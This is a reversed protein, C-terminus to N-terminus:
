HGMAATCLATITSFEAAAKAAGPDGSSTILASLVSGCQKLYPGALVACEHSCSTPTCTEGDGWCPQDDCAKDMRDTLTSSGTVCDANGPDCMTSMMTIEAVDNADMGAMVLESQCDSMEGFCGSACLVALDTNGDDADM